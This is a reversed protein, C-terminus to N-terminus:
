GQENRSAQTDGLSKGLTLSQKVTVSQQPQVVQQQVYLQQMSCNISNKVNSNAVTNTSPRQVVKHHTHQQVEAARTIQNVGQNCNLNVCRGTPFTANGTPSSKAITVTSNSALMQPTSTAVVTTGLQVILSMPEESLSNQTQLPIFTGLSTAATNRRGSTNAPIITASSAQGVVFSTGGQGLTTATFPNRVLRPTTTTRVMEAASSASIGAATVSVVHRQHQGGASRNSSGALMNSLM